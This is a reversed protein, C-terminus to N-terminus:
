NFNNVSVTRRSVLTSRQEERISKIRKVTECFVSDAIDKTDINNLDHSLELFPNNSAVIAKVLSTVHRCFKDQFFKNQEHHKTDSSVDKNFPLNSELEQVTRSVDPGSIM